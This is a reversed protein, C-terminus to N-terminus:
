ATAMRSNVEKTVRDRADRIKQMPSLGAFEKVSKSDRPAPINPHNSQVGMGLEPNGATVPHAAKYEEEWKAKADAMRKAEAADSRKKQESSFQFKQEAYQEIPMHAAIAESALTDPDIPMPKEYISAYRTQVRLAASMNSALTNLKGELVKLPDPPADVKPTPLDPINLGTFGQKKIAEIAADRTTLAAQLAANNAQLQAINTETMGSQRINDDIVRQLDQADKLAKESAALKTQAETEAAALKGNWTKVADAKAPDVTVGLDALLEEVTM